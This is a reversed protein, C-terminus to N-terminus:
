LIIKKNFIKNRAEIKIIYIGRDVNIAIQNRGEAAVAYLMQGSLNYGSIRESGCLTAIIIQRGSM